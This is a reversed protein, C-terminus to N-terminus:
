AEARTGLPVVEGEDVVYTGAAARAV